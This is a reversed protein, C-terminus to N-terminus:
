AAAGAAAAALGVGAVEAAVSGAAEGEAVSDADAARAAALGGDAARAAVSDWGRGRRLGGCPTRRREGRLLGPAVKHLLACLIIDTGM